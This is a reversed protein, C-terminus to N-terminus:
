REKLGKERLGKLKEASPKEIIGKETIIATIYEAPTVDFAPNFVNVGKPAIPIDEIHTVENKDREEIVIDSGTEIGFDITSVPAAVYFPVKNEYAIVAINYTGIKNATDGNLAVRDAGVLVLDVKGRKMLLGSASDPILTLPIQEKALEWATLRAGQLRPRTEDVFVHINKGQRHATRIVGLATGFEVTALSGTNCHTLINSSIPVLKSGYEGIKRNADIDENAIQEAAKLVKQYIERPEKHRNDKIIGEIKRLAWFLNVATPRTAAMAKSAEDLEMFFEARDLNSFEKAALAMGYAAAVGIAPAGRVLMNKIAYAVERYDKCTKHELTGPLKRQDIVLVKDQEWVVTRM